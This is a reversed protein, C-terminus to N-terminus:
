RDVAWRVEVGGGGGDAENWGYVWVSALVRALWEM